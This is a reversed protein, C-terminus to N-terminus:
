RGARMLSNQSFDNESLGTKFQYDQFTLLTTKGTLHNEMYMEGARWYKGLYQKYNRMYLTKLLAGTRNYFETKEARYNNKNIWVVQKTYGSNKADVPYREMVHCEQGNLNEDKLWKYTYKEVEQSSLDENAFESGMFPGSKNSSSIRKVRKLAPLFLWQDDDGTKHTYTLSATGKVDLPSEFTILSKDGDDQL